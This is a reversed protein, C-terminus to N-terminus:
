YDLGMGDRERERVEVQTIDDRAYARELHETAMIIAYLNAQEDYAQRERSTTYLDIEEGDMSIARQAISARQFMIACWSERKETTRPRQEEEVVRAPTNTQRYVYMSGGWGQM